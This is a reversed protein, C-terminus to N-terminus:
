CFYAKKFMVYVAHYLWMQSGYIINTFMYNQITCVFLNNIVNLINCKIFIFSSILFYNYYLSVVSHKTTM